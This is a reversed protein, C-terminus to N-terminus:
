QPLLYIWLFCHLQQILVICKKRDSHTDLLHLILQALDIQDQTCYHSTLSGTVSAIGVSPRFKVKHLSMLHSASHESIYEACIFM